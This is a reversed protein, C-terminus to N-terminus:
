VLTSHPTGPPPSIPAVLSVHPLSAPPNQSDVWGEKAAVDQTSHHTHVEDGPSLAFLARHHHRTAVTLHSSQLNPRPQLVSQSHLSPPPNVLPRAAGPSVPSSSNFIGGAKTPWCPIASGGPLNLAAPPELPRKSCSPFLGPSQVQPGTSRQPSEQSRCSKETVTNDSGASTQTLPLSTVPPSRDESILQWM